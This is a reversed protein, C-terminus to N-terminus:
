FNLKLHGQVQNIYFGDQQQQVLKVLMSSRSSTNYMISITGTSLWQNTRAVEGAVTWDRNFDYEYRLGAMTTGYEKRIGAYDVASLLDGHDVTYDRITRTHIAGVFPRLGKYDPTYVRVAAWYDVGKTAASNNLNLGPTAHNTAFKNQAYGVDGKIIWNDITKAGYFAFTEKSMTGGGDAIMLNVDNHVYKFGVLTTTNVRYDAGLGYSENKYNYGDSKTSRQGAGVIYMTANTLENARSILRGERVKNRTLPDSLNENILRKNIANLQDMQDIRTSYQADNSAVQVDNVTSSNTVVQNAVSTTTVPTGEASTTSGDSYTTVTVPTTVTTTTIPTTAVVTTTVPTTTTVTTNRNINLVKAQRDRTDTVVTVDVPTGRTVTTATTTTGTSTSTSVLPTGDATSVVTPATNMSSVAGATGPNAISTGSATSTTTNNSDYYYTVEGIQVSDCALTGLAAQCGAVSGYTDIAKISTFTIFYYAYANTNTISVLNTQTYRGSVSSLTTSQDKTVETWTRGDNSGYLTFKTPDRPEFDNATTFKVGSIVKGQNLTITFGSNTRDFNLYKSSSTGDVAKSATEGAPSNNSTPTVATINSSTVATWNPTPAVSSATQGATLPTTNTYTYSTLDAASVSTDMSTFTGSQGKTYGAEPTIVTGWSGNGLYFIAGNGLASFTGTNNIVKYLTGNSEYLALGYTGPNTTSNFFAFYRGNAAADALQADTLRAASTAQTAYNVSAYLNNFNSANLTTGNWWYQVDWIQATTFKGDTIDAQAVSSLLLAATM